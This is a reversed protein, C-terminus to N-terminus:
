TRAYISPRLTVIKQENEQNQIRQRVDIALERHVLFKSQEMWELFQDLYLKQEVCNALRSTKEELPSEELIPELMRFIRRHCTKELTEVVRSKSRTNGYRLSKALLEAHNIVGAIGLIEIMFAISSDTDESLTESLINLDLNPHQNPLSLAHYAYFVARNCENRILDYCNDQLSHLSLEQLCLAALLRKGKHENLDLLLDLLVPASSDEIQVILSAIEQREARKCRRGMSLLDELLDSHRIHGLAGLLYRRTTPCTCSRLKSALISAHSHNRPSTSLFIGEAAALVIEPNPHDLFPLLSDLHQDCKTLSVLSLGLRLSTPDDTRLFEQLNHLAEDNKVHTRLHVLTSAARFYPDPSDIHHKVKYFPLLKQEALYFYIHCYIAENKEDRLWRNLHQIVQVNKAFPSERLLILFEKKEESSLSHTAELLEDLIKYNGLQLLSRLAFLSLASGETHLENLLRTEIEEISVDEIENALETVSRGFPIALSELNSFIAKLYRKRLAWALYVGGISFFVGIQLMPHHPFRCILAGILVGLPEFFSEILVRIKYKLKSPTASLLIGLNTDNVTYILGEIVLFTVIPFLFHTSQLSGEFFVLYISPMIFITNNVGIRRVVRGYMFLGFILNGLSTWITITGLFRSIDSGAEGGLPVESLSFHSEMTILYFYEAMLCLTDKLLTNAFLLLTFSSALITLVLRKNSQKVSENQDVEHEQDLEPITEHIKHLIALCFIFTCAVVCMYGATGLIGTSMFIGASATGIFIACNLSCFLRKADQLTYHLDVFSWYSTTLEVWLVYALVRYVYWIWEIKEALPSWISLSLIAYFISCILLVSSYIQYLSYRNLARIYFYAITFLCLASLIYSNSLDEGGIRILFAADSLKLGASGAFAWTFGLLAFIMASKEEGRFISFLRRFYSLM